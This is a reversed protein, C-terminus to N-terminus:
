MFLHPPPPSTDEDDCVTELRVGEDEDYAVIHPLCRTLRRFSLYFM